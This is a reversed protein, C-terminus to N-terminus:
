FGFEGSAERYITEQSDFFGPAIDIDKLKIDKDQSIHNIINKFYGTFREITTEKFLCTRYEIECRFTEAEAVATFTLDFRAAPHKYDFPKVTLGPIEVEPIDLDQFAFMTDFLLNGRAATKEVLLEFPYAQNDFAQLTRQRIEKLFGRFTKNGSPYNRLALTNVFMGIIPLLGAHDRGIVPTGVVIDENWSLKHLLVLYIALLLMFHTVEEERALHKLIDTEERTLRFDFRNGRSDRKVPSPYDYMLNLIPIPDRFQALWYEEQTKIIERREIRNQWGSFDKYQLRLSPLPPLPSLTEGANAYLAIFDDILVKMSAGDSIIHHMDIMLIYGPEKGEQSPYSRLAAPTHPLEILGVRLLPAQSLDFPRIFNKITSACRVACPAHRKEKRVASQAKREAFETSLPALGRTGEFLWSQEEEVEAQYYEMEFEVDDHIQQVVQGEIMGFSTRFSEHRLILRHFTKELREKDPNGALIRLLPMNYTMDEEDAQQMIYLRKQTSSLPYYNKKEVPEISIYRYAGAKEICRALQRIFPRAFLDSLTLRVGFVNQIRSMAATAKLSHGGLEFFNDNVGIFRSDLNLITAWIKVLKEEIENGPAEYRDGQTVAPEPLRERHVKGNATLPIKDIQVFYSPIMYHPLSKSLYERLESVSLSVVSGPVYYACLYGQTGQKDEKLLVVAEKIENHKILQSEIEGLEIRFGRLKVQHDIRGLFEINGDSLWRGLDGTRYIPYSKKGSVKKDQYDLCDWLDHDFKEATLEPRNLYGRATGKGSIYVEGSVGIPVPKLNKDLLYIETNALPKGIPITVANDAITDIFFYTAYVTTETPGYVHILRGKGMYELAKRSHEVSIREGGFLVNRIYQFCDLRLDVLTNFLATTVFFVTIQERKILAGLRDVAMVKEGEPVVLAAGNLLAGYIDFVSGDFAYNSLQLIRDNDKIEIYNTNKVVRVVNFHATLVGKPKGATGSTYIIYALSTAPAPTLHLHPSAEKSPIENVILLQCNVILLKEFKESFFSSTVLIKAVSDKLMFNIREKPYAPEIPLYAGGAKLIGLIGIIMEISRKEMIGVINDPGVGKEQLLRAMRGSKENSERYTVVPCGRPAAGVLATRDPTRAAQEEFLRQITKEAPYDTKTNNFDVLIEEREEESMLELESIKVAPEGAVGVATNKFYRIFRHITSEKFLKTSYEVLFLLNGAAKECTFTLDFKATGPDYELPILTLGPIEITPTDLDQLVFMVDFLPNRGTDRPLALKEVLEEFPYDQNEFAELTSEKVSDLYTVFTKEGTPYYRLALTNVFMGIINELDAHRRGATPTGIVIDERNSIKALFISLIASLVMYLTTGQRLAATQLDATEEKGIEFTLRRGEFQQVVPRPFDTPLELVPIEGGFQRLWYTEQDTVADKWRRSDQWQSFDRYNVRLPQLEEEAWLAMFDRILIGISIGDAIIHHMDVLLLYKKEEWKVLGVRLLPAKSLNFPRSFNELGGRGEPVGGSLPNRYALANGEQSPHGYAPTHEDIEFAVEDHIRQVPTDAVMFFSTRFSEHREILRRFTKELRRSDVEGELELVQTMNYGTNDKEVQHLIYLRKQASSLIYYDKKETLTVASYIEKIAKNIHRALGRVTPFKFLQSISVIIDLVKHMQSVLRIATLSHGGLQFFNDDVGISSSATGLVVSWIEVLKKEIEDRPPEYAKSVRYVPLPLAKKDVKGNATLPIKDLQEFYSPVMYGPLSRALFEKLDMSDLTEQSVFYACLYKEEYGEDRDIVVAEKILPHELLRSEIEGLEIRFGRIKVQYDLRGLYEINGDPLWRALDGTRYIPSHPSPTIPYQSSRDNTMPCQDNTSLQYPSSIVARKLNGIVLSSYSIVVRKFKEATLGPRNLYGRTVGNGAIYLEGTTGVPMLAGHDGLIFCKVNTIPKGLVVSGPTCKTTLADVTVETPGYHNYLEYGKELILDKVTEALKEGGSLVARLSKLKPGYGLLEKLMIPVSNIIHLRNEDIFRRLRDIDVLIEKEVLYLSGGNLLTGFVQEVSPDFTFDTMQLVRVGEGVHYQKAYWTVTNVANRHEAMVGKPQGTTGSTYIIYALSTAPAPTLHLHPSAEKPSIENVVVLQCNIILLKKFKESSGPTTVLFKVSSDALMYDIREEPYDPDIPLYAGGAKLIGLIGIVMEVSREMMIGVITDPKVGKEDLLQALRTSKKDLEKYTIAILEQSGSRLSNQKYNKEDKGRSLNGGEEKGMLAIRDPTKAAQEEFLQYITKDGPYDATTNNFEYLLRKKEKGSIIEMDAAQQGPNKVINEVLHIFHDSLNELSGRDFVGENYIFSIHIGAFITIGVTLDYHTKEALSYSNVSLPGRKKIFMNDLPYNEIVVISDFLEEDPDLESCRKIDILSAFSVGCEERQGLENDLKYLLEEIKEDPSCQVRLPLTNIFLGVMEEIGKVQASRGSVTIGFLVNRKNNYKQLLIGWAGYLLSALTISHTHVFRELGTKMDRSFSVKLTRTNVPEKSRRKLSLRTQTDFGQLHNRWYKEQKGKDRTQVWKIFENFGTKVPKLPKKLATLDAYANFFEKLIIGNSWGDYLIHHNSIIMEYYTKQIKCLTVRFLVQQLDFKEQRDKVKIEELHSERNGDPTTSFDYYKLRLPHEKLIIQIPSAMKEWRFVTRLIENTRIVFNWAQEFSDLQIDGKIRLSLQEFYADSAPEKLYHFLMGEQMPTLALIDQVNKNDFKEV